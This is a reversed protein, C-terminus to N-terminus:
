DGTIFIENGVEEWSIVNQLVEVFQLYTEWIRDRRDSSTLLVNRGGNKNFVTHSCSYHNGYERV